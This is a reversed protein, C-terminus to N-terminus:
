SRTGASDAAAAGNPHCEDSLPVLEASGILHAIPEVAKPLLVPVARRLRLPVAAIFNFGKGSPRRRHAHGLVAM